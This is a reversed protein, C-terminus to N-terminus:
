WGYPMLYINPEIGPLANTWARKAEDTKAVVDVPDFISWSYDDTQKVVFGVVSDDREADYFPSWVDLDGGDIRENIKAKDAESLEETLKEYTLGVVIVARYEVGM